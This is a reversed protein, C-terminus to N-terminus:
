EGHFESSPRRVCQLRRSTCRVMLTGGVALFRISKKIHRKIWPSLKMWLLRHSCPCPGYNPIQSQQREITSKEKLSSIRNKKKGGFAQQPGSWCLNIIWKSVNQNEWLLLYSKNNNRPWISISDWLILLLLTKKRWWVSNKPLVICVSDPAVVFSGPCSFVVTGIGPLCWFENGRGGGSDQTVYGM